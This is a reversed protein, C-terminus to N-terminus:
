HFPDGCDGADAQARCAMRRNCGVVGKIQENVYQNSCLADGCDGADEQARCVMRGDAVGSRKTAHHFLKKKRQKSKSICPTVATELTRRYGASWADAVGSRKTACQLWGM